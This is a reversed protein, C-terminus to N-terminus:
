EGGFFLAIVDFPTVSSGPSEPRHLATALDLEDDANLDAALLFHPLQTSGPGGLFEPAPSFGGTPGRRFIALNQDLENATALDLLGDANLDAAVLCRPADLNALVVDAAQASIFGTKPQHFISVADGDLNATAIDLRGDANLDAGLLFEPRRVIGPHELVIPASFQGGSGLFLSVRDLNASALDLIGDANWDAAALGHPEATIGPGGLAEVASFERPIPQFFLSLDNSAANASALDLRGDAGLDAAVISQPRDMQSSSGLEVPPGQFQGSSGQFFVALNDSSANASAADIRGDGDIDALVLAFPEDFRADALVISPTADFAGPVGQVFLTLANSEANASALDQKGDGNLDAAAIWQPRDNLASTGLELDPTSPFRGPAEQLHVAVHPGGSSTLTTAFDPRGDANWDGVERDVPGETRQPLMVDRGNSFRGDPGQLFAGVQDSAFSNFVMDLRGDANIDAGFPRTLSEIGSDSSNLVLDPEAPFEFGPRQFHVFSDVGIFSTLDVRGDRDLDVAEVGDGTFSAAEFIVQPAAFGPTSASSAQQVLIATFVRFPPSEDHTSQVVLDIQGDENVDVIDV